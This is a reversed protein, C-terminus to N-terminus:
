RVFGIKGNGGWEGRFWGRCTIIAYAGRVVSAQAWGYVNIKDTSFNSSGGVGKPRTTETRGTAGRRTQRTPRAGTGPWTTNINRRTQRRRRDRRIAGRGHAGRRWHQRRRNQRILTLGVDVGTVSGVGKARAVCDCRRHCPLPGRSTVRGLPTCHPKARLIKTSFWPFVRALWQNQSFYHTKKKQFEIKSRRVTCM